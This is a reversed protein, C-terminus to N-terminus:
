KKNFLISYLMNIITFIAVSILFNIIWNIQYKIWEILLIDNIIFQLLFLLIANISLVVLSHFFLSLPIWFIKLIPKITINLVWLIIWCLLYTQWVLEWIIISDPRSPTNLLYAIIFFTLSNLLISFFIKM